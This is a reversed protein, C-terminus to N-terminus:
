TRMLNSHRQRLGDIDWYTKNTSKDKIGLMGSQYLYIFIGEFNLAVDILKNQNHRFVLKIIWSVALFATLLVVIATRGSWIAWTLLPLAISSLIGFRYPNGSSSLFSVIALPVGALYLYNHFVLALVSSAVAFLLPASLVAAQTVAYSQSYLKNAADLVADHDIGITLERSRVRERVDQLNKFPFEPIDEVRRWKLQPSVQKEFEVVSM